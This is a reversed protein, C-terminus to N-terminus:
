SSDTRSLKGQLVHDNLDLAVYVLPTISFFCIPANGGVISILIVMGYRAHADTDTCKLPYIISCLLCNFFLDFHFSDREGGIHYIM